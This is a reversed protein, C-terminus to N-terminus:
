HYLVTETGSNQLRQDALIIELIDTPWLDCISSTHDFVAMMVAIADVEVENWDMESLVNVM